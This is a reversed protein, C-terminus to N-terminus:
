AGLRLHPLRRFRLRIVCLFLIFAVVGNDLPYKITGVFFTTLYFFLAGYGFCRAPSRKGQLFLGYAYSYILGMLSFTVAVLLAGGNHYASGILTPPATGRFSQFMFDHIENALISGRHGPLVGLISDGWEQFWVIPQDYIFRFAVLGAWQNSYFIREFSLAISKFVNGDTGKYLSTMMSFALFLLVVSFLIRGNIIKRRGLSLLLYGFLTAVFSFVLYTRQGAGAVALVCIIVLLPSLFRSVRRSYQWVYYGLLVSSLPLLFNKFQNFYGAGTYEEGAYMALRITSYDDDIGTTLALLIM